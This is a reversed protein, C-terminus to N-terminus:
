DETLLQKTDGDTISENVPTCPCSLALPANGKGCVPCKWGMNTAMSEPVIWNPNQEMVNSRKRKKLENFFENNIFPESM